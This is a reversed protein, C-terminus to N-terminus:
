QMQKDISEMAYYQALLSMISLYTIVWSMKVQRPSLKGTM